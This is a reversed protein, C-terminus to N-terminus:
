RVVIVNREHHRHGHPYGHRHPHRFEDEIVIPAVFGGVIERRLTFSGFKRDGIKRSYHCVEWGRKHNEKIKIEPLHSSEISFGPRSRKSIKFRRGEIDINSHGNNLVDRFLDPGISPCKAQSFGTILLVALLIQRHM